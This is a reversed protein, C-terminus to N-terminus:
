KGKREQLSGPGADQEDRLAQLLPPIAEKMRKLSETGQVKHSAPLARLLSDSNKNLINQAKLVDQKAFDILRTKLDMKMSDVAEQVARIDKNDIPLGYRLLSEADSNVRTGAATPANLRADAYVNQPIVTGTLSTTLLALSCFKALAKAPSNSVQFDSAAGDAFFPRMQNHFYSSVRHMPKWAICGELLTLVIVVQLASIAFM